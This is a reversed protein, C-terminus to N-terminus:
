KNNKIGLWKPINCLFSWISRSMRMIFYVINKSASPKQHIESTKTSTLPIIKQQIKKQQIAEHNVNSSQDLSVQNELKPATAIPKLLDIVKLNSSQCQDLNKKEEFMQTTSLTQKSNLQNLKTEFIQFTEKTSKLLESAQKSYHKAKNKAIKLSQVNEDTIYGHIKKDLFDIKGEIEVTKELTKKLLTNVNLIILCDKKKSNKIKAEVKQTYDKVSKLDSLTNANLQKSTAGLVVFFFDGSKQKTHTPYSIVPSTKPQSLASPLLSPANSPQMQLPIGLPPNNFQIM